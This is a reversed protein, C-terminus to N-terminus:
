PQRGNKSSIAGASLPPLSSDGFRSESRRPCLSSTLASGASARHLALGAERSRCSPQCPEPMEPSPPARTWANSLSAKSSRIDSRAAFPMMIDESDRLMPRELGHSPSPRPINRMPRPMRRPGRARPRANCLLAGYSRYLLHAWGLRRPCSPHRTSATDTQFQEACQLLDARRMVRSSPHNPAISARTPIQLVVM